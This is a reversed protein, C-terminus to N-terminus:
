WGGAYDLSHPSATTALHQYKLRAMQRLHLYDHAVWSALLSGATIDGINPHAYTAGWDPTELNALWAVSHERERRFLTRMEVIDQEAYRREQVWSEPDIVPWEEGPNALLYELRPRFDFREVDYLHCIVELISWKGPKPKWLAQTIDTHKVFSEIAYANATLRTTYYAINM